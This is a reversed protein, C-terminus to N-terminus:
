NKIENFIHVNNFGSKMVVKEIFLQQFIFCINILLYKLFSM